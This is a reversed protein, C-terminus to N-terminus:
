RIVSECNKRIVYRIFILFETFCLLSAVIRLVYVFLCESTCNYFFNIFHVTSMYCYIKEFNNVKALGTSKKKSTVLHLDQQIKRTNHVKNTLLKNNINRNYRFKVNNLNRKRFYKQYNSVEFVLPLGQFPAVEM